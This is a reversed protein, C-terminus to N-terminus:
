LIMEPQPTLSRFRQPSVSRRSNPNPPLSQNRPTFSYHNMNQITKSRAFHRTNKSRSRSLSRTQSNKKNKKKNTNNNNNQGTYRRFKSRGRDFDQTQPGPSPGPSYLICMSIMKVTM